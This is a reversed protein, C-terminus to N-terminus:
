VAGLINDRVLIRARADRSKVGFVRLGGRIDGLFFDALPADDGACFFAVRASTAVLAGWLARWMLTYTSDATKFFM